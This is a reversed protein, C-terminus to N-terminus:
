EKIIRFMRTAAEGDGGSYLLDIGREDEYISLYVDDVAGLERQWISLSSAPEGNAKLLEWSELEIDEFRLAIGKDCAKLLQDYLYLSAAGPLSQFVIREAALDELITRLYDQVQEPQGLQLYGSIVQLHNAFDHRVRRLLDVMFEATM